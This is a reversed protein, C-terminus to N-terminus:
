GRKGFIEDLTKPLDYTHQLVPDPFYRNVVWQARERTNVNLMQRLVAIDQYDKKERGSILKCALIYSMDAPVYLELKRYTLLLRTPPIEGLERLFPACDDNLFVRQSGRWGHRKGVAEITKRVKRTTKDLNYILSAEGEGMLDTVIVDVDMTPRTSVGALLLCAGGVVLVRIPEPGPFANALAEDLEGLLEELEEKNM